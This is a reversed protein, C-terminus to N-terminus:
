SVAGYQEIEDIRQDEIADKALRLIERRYRVKLATVFKNYPLREFKKFVFDLRKTIISYDKKSHESLLQFLIVTNPNTHNIIHQGSYFTELIYRPRKTHRSWEFAVICKSYYYITLLGIKFIGLEKIFSSLRECPIINDLRM